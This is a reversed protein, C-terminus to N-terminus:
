SREPPEPKRPTDLVVLRGAKEISLLNRLHEATTGLAQTERLAAILKENEM